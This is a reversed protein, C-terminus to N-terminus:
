RLTCPTIRACLLPLGLSRYSSAAPCYCACRWQRVKTMFQPMIKRQGLAELVTVFVDKQDANLADILNKYEPDDLPIRLDDITVGTEPDMISAICGEEAVDNKDIDM